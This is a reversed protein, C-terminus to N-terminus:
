DRGRDPRTPSWSARSAISSPRPSRHRAAQDVRKAGVADAQWVTRGGADRVRASTYSSSDCPGGDVTLTGDAAARVGLARPGFSLEIIDCGRWGLPSVIWFLVLALAVPV